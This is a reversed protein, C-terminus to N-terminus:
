PTTVDGSRSTSSSARAPRTSATPPYDRCSSTSAPSCACTPPDVEIQHGNIYRFLRVRGKKRLQTMLWKASENDLLIGKATTTFSTVLPGSSM